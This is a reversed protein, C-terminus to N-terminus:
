SLTPVSRQSNSASLHNRRRYRWQADSQFAHLTKLPSILLLVESVVAEQPDSFSGDRVSPPESDPFADIEASGDLM